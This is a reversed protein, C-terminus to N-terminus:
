GRGNLENPKIYNLSARASFDADYNSGVGYFYRYETEDTKERMFVSRSTTGSSLYTYYNYGSENKRVDVIQCGDINSRIM